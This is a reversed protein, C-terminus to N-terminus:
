PREETATTATQVTPVAVAGTKSGAQPDIATELTRSARVFEDAALHQRVEAADAPRLHGTDLCREVLTDITDALETM